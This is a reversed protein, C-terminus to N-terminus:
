QGLDDPRRVAGSQERVPLSLAGGLERAIATDRAVPALPEGSVRRRGPHIGAGRRVHGLFRQPEEEDITTLLPAVDMRETVPALCDAELIPLLEGAQESECVLWGQQRAHDVIIAAPMRTACAVPFAADFRIDSVTPEIQAALEYGLFVFWGGTFPPADNDPATQENAAAAQARWDQDFVSWFIAPAWIWSAGIFGPIRM